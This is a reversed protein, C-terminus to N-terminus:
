LHQKVLLWKSYLDWNNHLNYEDQVIMDGTGWEIGFLNVSGFKQLVVIKGRTEWLPPDTPYRSTAPDWFLCYNPNWYKDKFATDFGCTTDVSSYEQQIRMYITESPNEELFHRVTTLVDDFYANQFVMGHHIAFRDGRHRCRIDVARIGARLQNELSASQCQVIVGGFLSMSDHTGPLSLQSMRLDDHLRSMWDCRVCGIDEEHCYADPRAASM